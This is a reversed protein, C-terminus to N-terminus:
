FFILFIISFYCYFSHSGFQICFNFSIFYRPISNFFFFKLFCWFYFLYYNFCHPDFNICIHFSLVCKKKLTPLFDSAPLSFLFFFLFSFGDFGLWLEETCMDKVVLFLIAHRKWYRRQLCHKIAPLRHMCREFFVLVEWMNACAVCSGIV